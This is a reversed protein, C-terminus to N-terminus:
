MFLASEASRCKQCFSPIVQLVWNQPLLNQIGVADQRAWRVLIRVHLITLGRLGMEENSKLKQSGESASVRGLASFEWLGYGTWAIWLESELCICNEKFGLKKIREKGWGCHYDCCEADFFNLERVVNMLGELRDAMIVWTILDAHYKFSATPLLCVMSIDWNTKWQQQGKHRGSGEQGEAEKQTCRHSNDEEQDHGASFLSSFSVICYLVVSLVPYAWKTM